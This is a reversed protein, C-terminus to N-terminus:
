NAAILLVTVLVVLCISYMITRVDGIGTIVDNLAAAEPLTETQGESNHFNEDIQAMVSDMNEARDVKVGLFSARDKVDIGYANKVAEDFLRRDFFLARAAERPRTPLQVAPILNLTMKPNDPARLVIPQGLKWGQERMLVSGVLASRRDSFLQKAIEPPMQFESSIVPVIDETVGIAVVPDRPDRYIAGFAIEPTCAIVHPMKKIENCYKAPLKYSNHPTVVLSLQKAAEAAIRDMSVPVAILVTFLFVAVAFSLATLVSRRLQRRMNRIAVM